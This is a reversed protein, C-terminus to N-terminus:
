WGDEDSDIDSADVTVEILGYKAHRVSASREDHDFFVDFTGLGPEDFSISALLLAAYGESDAQLLLKAMREKIEQRTM